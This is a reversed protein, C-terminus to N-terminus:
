ICNLFLQFRYQFLKVALRDIQVAGAAGICAYMCQALDGIEPNRADHATIGALFDLIIKILIKRLVDTDECDLLHRLAEMCPEGGAALQIFVPNVATFDCIDKLSAVQEAHFILQIKLVHALGGIQEGASMIEFAETCVPVHFFRGNTGDILNRNLFVVSNKGDTVM